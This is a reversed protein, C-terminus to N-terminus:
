AIMQPLQRERCPQLLRARHLAKTSIWALLTSSAIRSVLQDNFGDPRISHVLSEGDEVFEGLRARNETLLVDESEIVSKVVDGNRAIAADAHM